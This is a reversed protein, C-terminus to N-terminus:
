PVEQYCPVCHVRSKPGCTFTNKDFVEDPPCPLVTAVSGKCEVYQLCDLPYPLTIVREEGNTTKVVPCKPIQCNKSLNSQPDGPQPLPVGAMVFAVILCISYVGLLFKM